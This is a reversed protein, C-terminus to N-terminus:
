KTPIAISIRTGKGVASKVSIKWDHDEIIRRVIALGLGTGQRKTTYFPEFIRALEGEEIGRGCDEIVITARSPSWGAVIKIEGKEEISEVANLLLNWFVQKVGNSDFPFRPLGDAIEVTFRIRRAISQDATLLGVVKEIVSRLDGEVFHREEKRALLHYTDLTENLRACEEKVVNMLQRHEHTLALDAELIEVAESIANMPNRVEHVINAALEGVSALQQAQDLGRKLFELEEQTHRATTVDEVVELIHTVLGGADTIPAATIAYYRGSQTQIVDRSIRGTRFTHSGVCQRCLDEGQTFLGYCPNGVAKEFGWERFTRNVWQVRYDRGIMMMGHGISSVIDELRKHSKQLEAYLNTNKIAIGIRDALLEVSNIDDEDFYRVESHEINLVGITEGDVRIPVCLEAETPILEPTVNLFFPNQRAEDSRLTKGHRAVWGVIGQHLPIVQDQPVIGCYKGALTKLKLAQNKKDMLYIAVHDYGFSEQIQQVLSVYLKEGNILPEIGQSIRNILHLRTSRGRERLLLEILSLLTTTTLLIPLIDSRQGEEKLDEKKQLILLVGRLKKRSRLAFTRLALPLPTDLYPCDSADVAHGDSSNLDERIQALPIHARYSPSSGVDSSLLLQLHGRQLLYLAAYQNRMKRAFSTLQTGLLGRLAVAFGRRLLQPDWVTVRRNLTSSSRRSRM